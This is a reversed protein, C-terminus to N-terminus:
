DNGADKGKTRKKIRLGYDRISNRIVCESIGLYEAITKVTLGNSLMKQIQRARELQPKSLKSKVKTIKQWNPIFM